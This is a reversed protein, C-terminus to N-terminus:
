GPDTEASPKGESWEDLLDLLPPREASIVEVKPRRSADAYRILCAEGGCYKKVVYRHSGNLVLLGDSSHYGDWKAAASVAL